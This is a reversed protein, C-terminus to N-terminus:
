SAAGLSAKPQSVNICVAFTFALLPLSVIWFLNAPVCPMCAPAAFLLAAMVMVVRGQRHKTEEAGILRDLTLAIPILLISMDHVFLYFSVLTSVPIAILLADTRQPRRTAAFIMTTASAAITLPLVLSSRGLIGSAAGHLNAMHDVTLPLGSALGRSAGMRIMSRFYDVSQTVGAIWVSIAALIAASCTFAASFRWRRWLLFLVAVPIVLQFKFLGLAVLVGALSERGLQICTLAGALLALLIISDQGQMLAIAIPLFLFIAAPLPPWVRALNNMNPRLLRYCLVLIALNFSLFACYAQRFPLLSFPAFLLAQYAPRVFPLAVEERSVLADQFMKQAAYDYIEHGHGARIMYGAVYLNRFDAHGDRIMPLFGIWGSIQMGLMIAPLAMALATFYYPIQNGSPIAPAVSLVPLTEPARSLQSKREAEPVAITSDQRFALHDPAM